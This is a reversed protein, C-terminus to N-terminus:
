RRGFPLLGHFWGILILAIGGGVVGRAHKWSGLLMVAFGVFRLSQMWGTMSRKLYRGAASRQYPDLDACMILLVSSVAPPIISVVVGGFLRHRWFAVLAVLAASVDTGVKVPHIQHYLLRESLTV